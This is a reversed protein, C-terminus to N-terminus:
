RCARRLVPPRFLLLQCKFARLGRSNRERGDVFRGWISEAAAGWSVKKKITNEFSFSDPTPGASLRCLADRRSPGWNRPGASRFPPCGFSGSSSPCFVVEYVQPGPELSLSSSSLRLSCQLVMHRHCVKDTPGPSAAAQERPLAGLICGHAALRSGTSSGRLRIHIDDCVTDLTSIHRCRPSVACILRTKRLMDPM